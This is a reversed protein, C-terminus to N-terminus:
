TRHLWVNSETVYSHEAGVCITPMLSSSSAVSAALAASDVLGFLLSVILTSRCALYMAASAIVVNGLSLGRLSARWATTIVSESRTCASSVSGAACCSFISWALPAIRSKVHGQLRCLILSYSAESFASSCVGCGVFLFPAESGVAGKRGSAGPFPMTETHGEIPETVVLCDHWCTASLTGGPPM